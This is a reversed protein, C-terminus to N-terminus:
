LGRYKVLYVVALIILLVILIIIPLRSRKKKQLPPMQFQEPQAAAQQPQATAQPQAPEQQQEEQQHPQQDPKQAPQQQPKSAKLFGKETLLLDVTGSKLEYILLTQKFLKYLRMALDKPRLNLTNQMEIPAKKGTSLQALIAEDLIDLPEATRSEAEAILAKGAETVIITNPGPYYSTFEVLGKQKLTGALNSADFISANIASGFKELAMDPKIQLLCALDTFNVEDM